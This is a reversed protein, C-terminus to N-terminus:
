ESESRDGLIVEAEIEKGDRWVKLKIKDGVNYKAIAQSLTNKMDIKEGNIELVIDQDKLGATKAPSGAIVPAIPRGNQNTGPSTIWAGYGVPLDNEKKVDDDVITYYIGLYPYSIKGSNKVQELARKAANIPLVFGVNQAGSAIATNVGIVEGKLNLLPGGSNGENIAADTQILNELTERAGGGSATISRKLGSIVGVSVTNDFEGLANGIAIVTQGIQLNSSDGLKVFPFKKEEGGSIKVVALDQAPDLALVKAPYKEGDATIVTYEANADRVVHKNTVMMGDESVIFGSGAGVEKKETGRQRVQPAQFNEWFGFPDFMESPTSYYREYVPMNKTIIISAVAPSYDNVAKIVAEEQSTQAVYEIKVPNDGNQIAPTKPALAANFQKAFFDQNFLAAGLGFSVALALVFLLSKKLNKQDKSKNEGLNLNYM